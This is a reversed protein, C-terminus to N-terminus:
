TKEHDALQAKFYSELERTLRRAAVSRVADACIPTFRYDDGVKMTLTFKKEPIQYWKEHKTLTTPSCGLTVPLIPVKAQLAIAAAGRQFKFAKGPTTRTGEPFVILSGGERLEAECRDILLEPDEAYIYGMARIPIRMFPNAILAPKAICTVNPIQSILFVIDLLCPHNAVVVRGPVKLREAGRVEYDLIGIIRMFAMYSHFIRHMLLRSRRKKAVGSGLFPEFLPFLMGWVLVGCAGFMFFSLGTGFLRWYYNVREFM